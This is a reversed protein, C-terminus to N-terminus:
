SGEMCFQNKAVVRISLVHSNNELISVILRGIEFPSQTPLSDPFYEKGFTSSAQNVSSIVAENDYMGTDVIGPLVESVFINEPELEIALTRVAMHLGAKAAAHSFGNKYTRIASM